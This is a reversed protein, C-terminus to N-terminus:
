FLQRSTSSLSSPKHQYLMGDFMANISMPGFAPMLARHALEWNHEGPLATFLGDHDADRIHLLVGTVAKGVRKEDM